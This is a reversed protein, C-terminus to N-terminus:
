SSLRCAPVAAWLMESGHLHGMLAETSEQHQIPEKWGGTRRLKSSWLMLLIVAAKLHDWTWFLQQYFCWEGNQIKRTEKALGTDEQLERLTSLFRKLQLLSWALGPQELDALNPARMKGVRGEQESAFLCCSVGERAEEWAVKGCPSSVTEERECGARMEALTEQRLM